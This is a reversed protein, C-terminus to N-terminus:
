DHCPATCSASAHRPLALHERLLPGGNCGCWPVSTYKNSVLESQAVNVCSGCNIRSVGVRTLCHRPRADVLEQLPRRPRPFIVGPETSSSGQGWSTTYSWPYRAPGIVPRGLLYAGVIWSWPTRWPCRGALLSRWNGFALCSTRTRTATSDRSPSAEAPVSSTWVDWGLLHPLWISFRCSSTRLKQNLWAV